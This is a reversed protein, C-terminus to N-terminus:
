GILSVVFRLVVLTMLGAFLRELTRKAIGHTMRVGFPAAWVGAPVLLALGLLNVYGLSGVPLGAQGLGAWAFGLAGPSAILLGLGSCTALSALLPRGYLTMLTTMFATGGVSMLTSALGVLIAWIAVLPGKPLENGLRWRDRAFALKFAMLSGLVVWIWKLTTGQAHRAVVAGAAVRTGM